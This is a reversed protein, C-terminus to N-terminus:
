HPVGQRPVVSGTDKFLRMIRPTLDEMRATTHKVVEIVAQVTPRARRKARAQEDTLLARAETLNHDILRLQWAADERSLQRRSLGILLEALLGSATRLYLISAGVGAPAQDLRVLPDLAHLLDALEACIAGAEGPSDLADRATAPRHAAGPDTDGIIEALGAEIDTAATLTDLIEQQVQDWLTDLATDSADYGGLFARLEDNM